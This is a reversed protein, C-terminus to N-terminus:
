RLGHRRYYISVQQVSSSSLAAHTFPRRRVASTRTRVCLRQGTASTENVRSLANRFSPAFIQRQRAGTHAHARAHTERVYTSHVLQATQRQSNWVTMLPNITPTSTYLTIEPQDRRYCQIKVVDSMLHRLFWFICLIRPPFSM